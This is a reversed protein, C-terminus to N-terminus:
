TSNALKVVVNATVNVADGAGISLSSLSLETSPDSFRIVETGGSTQIVAYDVTGVNGAAEDTYSAESYTLAEAGSVTGVTASAAAYTMTALEADGVTFLKLLHATGIDTNLSDAMNNSNATTISVTM